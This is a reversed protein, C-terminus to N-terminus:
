SEVSVVWVSSRRCRRPCRSVTLRRLWGRLHGRLAEDRSTLHMPNAVLLRDRVAAWVVEVVDDRRDELSGATM